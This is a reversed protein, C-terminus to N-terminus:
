LSVNFGASWRTKWFRTSDARDAKRFEPGILVGVRGLLNNASYGVMLSELPKDSIAPAFFLSHSTRRQRHVLQEQAPLRPHEPRNFYWHIPLYPQLDIDQWKLPDRAPWGAVLGVSLGTRSHSYNAVTGYVRTNEGLAVRVREVTNERIGVKYNAYFLDRDGSTGIRKMEVEASDDKLDEQEAVPFKGLLAALGQVVTLDGLGLRYDIPEILISLKPASSVSKLAFTTDVSVSPESSARRRRTDKAESELSDEPVRALTDKALFVVIWLYHEGFLRQKSRGDQVLQVRAPARTGRPFYFILDPLRPNHSAGFWIRPVDTLSGTDFARFLRGTVATDPLFRTWSLVPQSDSKAAGRQPSLVGLLCSLLLVRIRM